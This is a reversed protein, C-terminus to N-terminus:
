LWYEEDGEIVREQNIRENVPEPLGIMLHGLPTMHPNGDWM